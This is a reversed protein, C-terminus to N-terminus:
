CESTWVLLAAHTMNRWFRVEPALIALMVILPDPRFGAEAVVGSIECVQTPHGRQM